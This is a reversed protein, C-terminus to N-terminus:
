LNIESKAKEAVKSQTLAAKDARQTEWKREREQQKKQAVIKEIQFKAKTEARRERERQREWYREKIKQGCKAQRLKILMQKKMTSKDKVAANAEFVCTRVDAGM